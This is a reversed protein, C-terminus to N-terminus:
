GKLINLIDLSIGGRTRYYVLLIALGLASEAGAVTLIILFSLIGQIDAFFVAFTVFSMNISLLIIELAVLLLIVHRSTLFVGCIGSIFLILVVILYLTIM